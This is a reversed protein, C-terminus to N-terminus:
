DIYTHLWWLFVPTTVDDYRFANINRIVIDAAAGRLAPSYTSRAYGVALLTTVEDDAFLLSRFLTCPDDRRRLEYEYLSEGVNPLLEWSQLTEIGAKLDANRAAYGVEGLYGRFSAYRTPNGITELIYTAAIDPFLTELIERAQLSVSRAYPDAALFRTYVLQMEEPSALRVLSCPHPTPTPAPTPTPTLEPTPRPPATSVSTPNLVPEPTPAPLSTNSSHRTNFTPEPCQSLFLRLLPLPHLQM